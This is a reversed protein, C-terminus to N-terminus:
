NTPNMTPDVRNDGTMSHVRDGWRRQRITEQVTLFEVHGDVFGHNSAGGKGDKKGLHSRGVANLLTSTAGGIVGDPVQRDDLIEDLRPYMFRGRPSAGNPESYPDTESSIGQFPMISRHSLVISSDGSEGASYLSSWNARQFFESVLITGSPISIDGDKVFKNYRPRGFDVFKNRPFIAANGCFAMRRAQFDQPAGPGAGQNGFSDRQGPEWDSSNEGPNTRPAGGHAVSPCLAADQPTAGDNFLFYSWHLIFKGGATSSGVQDQMDWTPDNAGRAYLYSAPMTERYTAVYSAVGQTVSRANAACKIQRAAERAKGLSPLLIGILLAIIAIVVLLEILTFAARAAPVPHRRVRTPAHM